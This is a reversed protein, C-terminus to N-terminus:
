ISLRVAFYLVDGDSSTRNSCEQNLISKGWLEKSAPEKKGEPEIEWIQECCSERVM